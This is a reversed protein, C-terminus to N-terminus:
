KSTELIPYKMPASAAQSIAQSNNHITKSRIAVFRFHGGAQEPRIEPYSVRAWRSYYEWSVFEYKESPNLGGVLYCYETHTHTLDGQYVHQFSQCLRGINGSLMQWIDGVRPNHETKGPMSTSQDSSAVLRPIRYGENRSLNVNYAM